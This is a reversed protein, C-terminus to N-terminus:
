DTVGDRLEPYQGPEPQAGGINDVIAKNNDKEIQPFRMNLWGDDAKINFQFADPYNSKKDAHIRVIPKGLRKADATFFGEGWLEVRRQFWVENELSRGTSRVYKPDRYNKIFDTMVKEGEAAKGSKILGEAKILIMEEVRMLPWDNNCLVSGCGSKMGFKVTNYPLYPEKVDEIVLSALDKGTVGDWSVKELLPSYANEDLWWAKRVDTDPILRYLLINITPTAQTAAAYGDGCFPSYWSSSTPAGDSLVMDNTVQIGWMWNSEELNCFAPASLDAMTAPNFGEMALSADAAAEAYNGLALNARARLGLAVNKNIKGKDTREATLHDVAWNLDEIVSTYVERVTARPNEAYGHKGDLLPICPSDLHAADGFQFYPALMMYDFARIARAQAMMNLAHEDKTDAPYMAIVDNAVGIQRYPNVYRIIPNAYNPNRTSLECATSFWNYDNDASIMDAGELDLSLFASIFGMDDARNSNSGTPWTIHPKGMMTFMSAFTAETREPITLNTEQVQENTLSGGQPFQEDIDACSAMMAAGLGLIYIKNLKM